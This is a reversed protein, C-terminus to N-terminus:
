GGLYIGYILDYNKFIHLILSTVKISIREFIMFITGVKETFLTLLYLSYGSVKHIDCGPGSGFCITEAGCRQDHAKLFV